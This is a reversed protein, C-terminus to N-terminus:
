TEPATVVITSARGQVRSGAFLSPTGLDILVGGTTVINVAPTWAARHASPLDAPGKAQPVDALPAPYGGDQPPRPPQSPGESPYPLPRHPLQDARDPAGSAGQGIRHRHSAGPAQSSSGAQRLEHKPGRFSTERTTIRQLMAFYPLGPNRPLGQFQAKGQGATGTARVKIAWIVVGSSDPEPM